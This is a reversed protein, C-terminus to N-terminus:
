CPCAVGGCTLEGIDSHASCMGAGDFLVPDQHAPTGSRWVIAIGEGVESLAGNWLLCGGQDFTGARLLCFRGWTSVIRVPGHGSRRALSRDCGMYLFSASVGSHGLSLRGFSGRPKKFHNELIVSYM